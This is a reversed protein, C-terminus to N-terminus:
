AATPAAIDDDLWTLIDTPRTWTPRPPQRIAHPASIAADRLIDMNENFSVTAAKKKGSFESVLMLKSDVVGASLHSEFSSDVKLLGVHQQFVEDLWTNYNSITNMELIARQIQDFSRRMAYEKMCGLLTLWQTIKEVDCTGHLHRFEVSGQTSIPILNLACYKQWRRFTYNADGFVKATLDFSLGSQYWPVCFINKDRDHGVFRFLLRELTQYLLCLNTVQEITMDLVNMHVHTSCRESYNRETIQFQAFFAKLLAPVHMMRIPRTVAEIGNNRLSGDTTFVFGGFLHPQDLTFSEIELELGVITDPAPLAVVGHGSKYGTPSKKEYYDGLLQNKDPM